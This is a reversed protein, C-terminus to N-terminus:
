LITGLQKMTEPEGEPM